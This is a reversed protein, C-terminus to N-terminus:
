NHFVQAVGTMTESIPLHQPCRDECEACHICNDATQGERVVFGYMGRVRERNAADDALFYDNYLAFASPIAVGQPCPLCYGCGTCGIKIREDFYARVKEIANLEAKGFSQASATNAIRLNDDVHAMESMGSLVVAPEPQSWLWRLAWEALTWDPHVAALMARMDPPLFQTLFGGRLPEMVIVGVGKEAALKMGKTGAQTDTDLYNYQIQTFEWDYGGLITEFVDYHDHFSFGIHGIRGDKRASELFEIIGLEQMKPWIGRHLNHALYYDIRGTNLRKLQDDLLEDMRKRTDIAWTPLKTAIKVKERYGNKLAHAVFPESAGPQNVDGSRHYPYATDVYNVGNDIAKRLMATALDIDISSQDNPDLLPLRMCGFGLISLQEGTKGLVRKEM